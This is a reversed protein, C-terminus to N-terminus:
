VPLNYKLQKIYLEYANNKKTLRCNVLLWEVGFGDM